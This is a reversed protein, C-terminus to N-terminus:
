VSIGSPLWDPQRLLVLYSGAAVVPFLLITAFLQTFPDPPSVLASGVFSLGVSCFLWLLWRDGHALPDNRERARVVSLVYLPLVPLPIVAVGAAWVTATGESIGRAQADGFVVWAIALTAALALVGLLGVVLTLLTDGLPGVGFM